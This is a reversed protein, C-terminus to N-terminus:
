KEFKIDFKLRFSCMDDATCLKNEKDVTCWAYEVAYM